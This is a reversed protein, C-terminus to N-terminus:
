CERRDRRELTCAPRAPVVPVVPAAHTPEAPAAKAPAAPRAPVPTSRPVVIARAPVVVVAVAHAASVSLGLLALWVWHAAGRQRAARKADRSARRSAAAALRARDADTPPRPAQPLRPPGYYAADPMTGSFSALVAAVLISSRRPTTM